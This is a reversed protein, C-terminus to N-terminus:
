HPANKDFMDTFWNAITRQWAPDRPTINKESLKIEWDKLVGEKKMLDVRELISTREAQTKAAQLRMNVLNQVMTQVKYPQLENARDTAQFISDGRFGETRAKQEVYQANSHVADMSWDRIDQKYKLDFQKTHTDATKNIVGAAKLMADQTLVSNQAKLNDLTANKLEMDQYTQIGGAIAGQTNIHPQNYSGPSSSRPQSTSLATAGNGYVLNPNLGAKKLRAMQAEPSNYENQMTWDSLADARQQGYMKEAWKRQKKASLINFVDDILGSGAQAIGGLLPDAGSQPLPPAANAHLLDPM